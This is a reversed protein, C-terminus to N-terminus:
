WTLTRPDGGDDLFRKLSAPHSPRKSMENAGVQRNTGQHGGPVLLIGIRNVSSLPSVVITDTWRTPNGEYRPLTLGRAVSVGAATGGALSVCGTRLAQGRHPLWSPVTIPCSYNPASPRRARDPYPKRDTSGRPGVGKPAPMVEAAPREFD